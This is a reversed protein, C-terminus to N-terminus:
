MLSETYNTVEKFTQPERELVYALFDLSFSRKTRAIKNCRSEVEGDNIEDQSNGHITELGRKSSSLEKM